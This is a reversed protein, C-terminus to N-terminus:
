TKALKILCSENNDLFGTLEDNMKKLEHILTGLSVVVNLEIVFVGQGVFKEISM